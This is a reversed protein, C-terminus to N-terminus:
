KGGSRRGLINAPHLSYLHKSQIEQESWITAENINRANQEVKASSSRPIM